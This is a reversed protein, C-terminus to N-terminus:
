PTEEKFGNGLSAHVRDWMQLEQGVELGKGETSRPRSQSVMIRAMKHVNFPPKTFVV